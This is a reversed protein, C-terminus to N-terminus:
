KRKGRKLKRTNNAQEKKTAWRCNSLEYDGDNNIRDISHEPSPKLGMDNYFNEFNMWRDCVKIGRGGWNKYGTHKPNLCRSLMHFWSRHETTRGLGRTTNQCKIQRKTKCCCNVGVGAKLNYGSVIKEIGCDCLCRWVIRSTKATVIRGEFSLVKLEGIRKGTLDQLLKSTPIPFSTAMIGRLFTSQNPWCQHVFMKTPRKLTANAPNNDMSKGFM